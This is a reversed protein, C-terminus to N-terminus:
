FVNCYMVFSGCDIWGCCGMMDWGDGHILNRDPGEPLHGRSIEKKHGLFPPQKSPVNKTSINILSVYLFLHEFINSINRFIKVNNLYFCIYFCFYFYIYISIFGVCGVGAGM